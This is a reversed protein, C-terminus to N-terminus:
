RAKVNHEYWLESRARNFVSICQCDYKGACGCIEDVRRALEEMTYPCRVNHEDKAWHADLKRKTM